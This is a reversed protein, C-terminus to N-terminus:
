GLMFANPDDCMSIWGIDCCCCPDKEFNPDDQFICTMPYDNVDDDRETTKFVVQTENKFVEPPNSLMMPQPSSYDMSMSFAIQPTPAPTMTIRKRISWKRQEIFNGRLFPIATILVESGEGKALTVGFGLKVLAGNISSKCKDLLITLQGPNIGIYFDMLCLGCVLYRRWDNGDRRLAYSSIQNLAYSISSVRKNRKYKNRPNQLDKRLRKYGELDEESLLELFQPDKRVLSPSSM